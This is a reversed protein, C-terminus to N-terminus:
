CARSPIAKTEGKTADQALFSLRSEHLNRFAQAGPQLAQSAPRFGATAQPGTVPEQDNAATQNETRDDQLPNLKWEAM